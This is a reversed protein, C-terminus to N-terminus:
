MLNEDAFSFYGESSVILHDIISIDLLAAANKIKATLEIDSKSPNLNGSPHNHALIIGTANNELAHKLIIRPDAVTGTLGGESIIEHHLIKNARNLFIVLFVEHKKFQLQAQLFQAIDKSTRIIEKKNDALSRRTSLELAACVAIAKALGIGKIKLRLIENVSLSSLKLLDNNVAQLLLKAVDVASLQKAGNNILIAILESNSLAEAGKLLLKERPRDDEAWNKISTSTAMCKKIM